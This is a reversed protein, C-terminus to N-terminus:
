PACGDHRPGVQAELQDSNLLWCRPFLMRVAAMAKRSVAATEHLLPCPAHSPVGLARTSMPWFLDQSDHPAIGVSLRLLALM